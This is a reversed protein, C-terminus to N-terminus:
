WLEGAATAARWYILAPEGTALHRRSVVDNTSLSSSDILVADDAQKLPATARESDRKDRETEAKLLEDWVPQGGAATLEDYRRQVRKEISAVLFFKVTANPLVVTGIDRGEM